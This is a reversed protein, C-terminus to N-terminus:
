SDTTGTEWGLWLTGTDGPESAHRQVAMLLPETVGGPTSRVAEAVGAGHIDDGHPDTAGKPLSAEHRKREILQERTEDPNRGTGQDNLTAEALLKKAPAFMPQQFPFQIPNLRDTM